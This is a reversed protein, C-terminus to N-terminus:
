FRNVFFRFGDSKNNTSDFNFIEDLKKMIAPIWENFIKDKFLILAAAAIGILILTVVLESSGREDDKADRLSAITRDAAMSAKIYALTTLENIKSMSIGGKM